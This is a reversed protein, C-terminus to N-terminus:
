HRQSINVKIANALADIEEIIEETKNTLLTNSWTSICSELDHLLAKLRNAGCYCCAGHLKHAHFQLDKKNLTSLASSIKKKFDPLELALMSLLDRALDPKNNSQKICDAWNLTETNM